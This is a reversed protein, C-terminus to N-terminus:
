RTAKRGTTAKLALAQQRTEPRDCVADPDHMARGCTWCADSPKPHSPAVREAVRERWASSTTIGICAPTELSRDSAARAVACMVDALALQQVKGIAAMVGAADWQRAGTPRMSMALTALMQAQDKSVTM